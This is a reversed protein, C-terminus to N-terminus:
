LCLSTVEDALNALEKTKEELLEDKEAMLEALEDDEGELDKRLGVIENNKALLLEELHNILKESPPIPFEGPTTKHDLFDVVSQHAHLSENISACTENFGPLFRLVGYTLLIGVVFSFAPMYRKTLSKFQLALFELEEANQEM